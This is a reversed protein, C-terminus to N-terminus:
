FTLNLGLIVIRGGAAGTAKGFLPSTLVGSYGRNQTNNFLNNVQVSLNAKPGPANAGAAQPASIVTPGGPGSIVMQPPAQGGANGAAQTEARRLAIQKTFSMQVNYNGPGVLSNRLVGAPRDNTSQDGNNDLGTTLSYPRGSNATVLFSVTTTKPLRLGLNSVLRHRSDFSSRSWESRWDYQNVASGNDQSWGLTYQVFGNIGVKGLAFNNPTYLRLGINKSFSESTSEFQYVNGIFPYLPRMRDVEDRAAAQIFPTRSNLRNFLDEPLPTGPYPANVNRTRIQHVGRTVDYSVAFRWGKTVSQEVTVATNISYPAALAPDIKRISGNNSTTTAVGNEFPNPYSPNLIVTELQHGAGDQRLVTETNGINFVQHFLRGGARVVTGTRPQYAIQFTPGLNNQDDLHTQAQYRVGAGLNLKPNVQWDAQVFSAFELQTLYVVPDGTTQRFTVPHGALYDDLSSFTFVGLYNTESAGYSKNYVWDTGFQVNVTRTVGWRITNGFNYNTGRRRTRNM